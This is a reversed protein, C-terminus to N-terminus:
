KAADLTGCVCLDEKITSPKGFQTATSRDLNYCNMWVRIKNIVEREQQETGQKTPSLKHLNLDTAISPVFVDAATVSSAWALLSVNFPRLAIQSVDECLKLLENAFDLTIGQNTIILSRSM